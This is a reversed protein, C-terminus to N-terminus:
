RTFIADFYIIRYRGCTVGTDYTGWRNDTWVSQRISDVGHYKGKIDNGSTPSNASAYPASIYPTGVDWSWSPRLPSSTTCPLEAYVKPIQAPLRANHRPYLIPASITDGTTGM